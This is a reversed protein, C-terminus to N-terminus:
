IETQSNYTQMGIWAWQKNTWKMRWDKCGLNFLKVLLFWWSNRQKHEYCEVYVFCLSCVCFSSHIQIVHLEYRMTLRPIEPVHTCYQSIVSIQTIRIKERKASVEACLNIVVTFNWRQLSIQMCTQCSMMQGIKILWQRTVHGRSRRTIQMHGRNVLSLLNCTRDIFFFHFVTKQFLINEVTM